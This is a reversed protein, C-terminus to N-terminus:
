KGIIGTSLTSSVLKMSYIQKGFKIKIYQADGGGGGEMKDSITGIM